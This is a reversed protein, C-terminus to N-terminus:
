LIWLLLQELIFSVHSSSEGATPDAGDVPLFSNNVDKIRFLNPRSELLSQVGRLHLQLNRPCNGFQWEYLVMLFMTAFIMELDEQSIYGKPSELLERFEKAALSYHYHAHDQATPRGATRVILGGRHMDNASIALLMRMVVKNAAAPGQYLCCFSSWDWGKMFYQITSSSPFYQFYTQDHESLVLANACPISATTLPPYLPISAASSFPLPSIGPSFSDPLIQGIESSTSTVPPHWPLVDSSPYTSRPRAPQLSRQSASKGRQIPIGWECNLRLNSCRACVPHEEGCKM